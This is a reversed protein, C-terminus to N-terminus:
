RKCEAASKDDIIDKLLLIIHGEAKITKTDFIDNISSSQILRLTPVISINYYTRSVFQASITDITDKTFQPSAYIEIEKNNDMCIDLFKDMKNDSVFLYSFTDRTIRPNILEIRIGVTRGYNLNFSNCISKSAPFPNGDFKIKLKVEKNSYAAPVLLFKQLINNSKKYEDEVEFLDDEKKSLLEDFKRKLKKALDTEDIFTDVTHRERLISKFAELKDHKEGFDIYNPAIKGEREDHLYFFIRKELELAKEYELQVFSKLSKPDITGLRFSVIGVFVDSQEVEALCTQLPSETKAGFEEMGRVIVKYNALTDWVKKRYERLDEFTSSIFVIKNGM